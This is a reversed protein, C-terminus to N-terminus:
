RDENVRYFIAGGGVAWAHGSDAAGLRSLQLNQEFVKPESFWTRGGDVTHYIYQTDDTLGWGENQNLFFVDRVGGGKVIWVRRWTEGGNSTGLMRGEAAEETSAAGAFGVDKDTFHLGRVAYQKVGEGKLDVPGDELEIETRLSNWTRGGDTTRYIVGKSGAAWGYAKDVFFVRYVSVPINYNTQWTTGGDTTALLASAGGVGEEEGRPPTAGGIWGTDSDSFFVTTPVQKQSLKTATWSSGGDTTKLVVGGRTSDAGVAWGVDPSIFHVSNLTPIQIGPLEIRTETWHQGGDTTRLIVGLSEEGTQSLPVDGCVFVIDPSVVSIGSYYFRSLNVETYSSSAPSRYQAIWKGPKPASETSSQRNSNSQQSKCTSATLAVLSVLILAIGHKKVTM